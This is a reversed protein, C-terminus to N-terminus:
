ESALRFLNDGPRVVYRVMDGPAPALAAPALSGPAARAAPVLGPGALLASLALIGLNRPLRKLATDM